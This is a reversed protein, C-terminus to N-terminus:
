RWYLSGVQFPIGEAFLWISPSFYKFYKFFLLHSLPDLFCWIHILCLIFPMLYLKSIFHCFWHVHLSPFSLHIAEMLPSDIVRFVSIFLSGLVDGPLCFLCRPLPHLGAILSGWLCTRYSSGPCLWTQLSVALVKQFQHPIISLKM